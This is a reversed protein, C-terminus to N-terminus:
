LTSNLYYVIWCHSHARRHLHIRINLYILYTKNGTAFHFVYLMLQLWSTLRCTFHAIFSLIKCISCHRHYWEQTECIVSATNISHKLIVLARRPLPPPDYDPDLDRVVWFSELPLQWKDTALYCLTSAIQPPLRRAFVIRQLLSQKISTWCRLRHVLM